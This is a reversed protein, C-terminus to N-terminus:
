CSDSIHCHPAGMSWRQWRGMVQMGEGEKGEGRWGEMWWCKWVCARVLACGDEPWVDGKYPSIPPFHDQGLSRWLNPCLWTETQGNRTKRQKTSTKPLNERHKWTGWDTNIYNVNNLPRKLNFIQPFFSELQTVTTNPCSQIFNQLQVGNEHCFFCSFMQEGASRHFQKNRVFNIKQM